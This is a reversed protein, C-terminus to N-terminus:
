CGGVDAASAECKGAGALQVFREVANRKFIRRWVLPNTWILVYCLHPCTIAADVMWSSPPERVKQCYISWQM